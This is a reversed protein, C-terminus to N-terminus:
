DRLVDPLAARAEREMRPTFYTNLEALVLLMAAFDDVYGLVPVFDPVTDLPLVFYGLVGVVLAKAWAPVEPSALLQRLLLAKEVVARGASKPVSQVKDLLRGETYHKANSRYDSAKKKKKKAM